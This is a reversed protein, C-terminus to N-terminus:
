PRSPAGNKQALFYDRDAVSSNTAAGQVSSLWLRGDADALGVVSVQPFDKTLAIVIQKLRLDNNIDSGSRGRTLEDLQRLILTHSDLMNGAHQELAVVSRSATRNAEELVETYKHWCYWTVVLLPLVLALGLLIRQAASTGRWIAKFNSGESSKM